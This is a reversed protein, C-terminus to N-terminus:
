MTRPDFKECLHGVKARVHMSKHNACSALAAVARAESVNRTMETLCKDAEASM